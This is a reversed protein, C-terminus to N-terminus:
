CFLLFVNSIHIFKVTVTIRWPFDSCSYKRMGDMVLSLNRNTVLLFLPVLFWLILFIQEKNGEVQISVVPVLIVTSCKRKLSYLVSEELCINITAWLYVCNIPLMAGKSLCSITKLKIELIWLQTCVADSFDRPAKRFFYNGFCLWCRNHEM